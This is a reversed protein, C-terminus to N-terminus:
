LPSPGLAISSICKMHGADDELVRIRYVIGPSMRAIATIDAFITGRSTRLPVRGDEDSPGVIPVVVFPIIRRPCMLAPTPAVIQKKKNITTMGKKKM